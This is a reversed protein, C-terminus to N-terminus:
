GKPKTAEALAADLEALIVAHIETRAEGVLTRIARLLLAVTPMSERVDREAMHLEHTFSTLVDLIQNVRKTDRGFPL